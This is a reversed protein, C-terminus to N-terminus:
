WIWWVKKTVMHNAYDDIPVSYDKFDIHYMVDSRIGKIPNKMAVDLSAKSANIHIVRVERNQKTLYDKIILVDDMQVEDIRIGVSHNVFCTLGFFVGGAGIIVFLLLAKLASNGRYAKSASM